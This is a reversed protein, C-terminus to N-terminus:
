ACDGEFVLSGNRCREVGAATVVLLAGDASIGAVRGACPATCPRGAAIDRMAYDALERDSLHGRAAAAARIAPVIESLVAGRDTAGGLAAAEPMDRPALRNIGIGIAVWDPRGDRWRSEVLIGGLKAGHLYLDNPWKLSVPGSAFRDLARAARLGARLSMVELARVDNPREVLTFLIGAGPAALWRRGGRGRGARQWEAVVLTGAPAGDAAMAHAVDMTSEVEDFVAVGPLGLLSAWEPATRDDYLCLPSLSAVFSSCWFCSWASCCAISRSFEM